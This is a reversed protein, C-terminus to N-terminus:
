YEEWESYETINEVLKNQSDYVDAEIKLQYYYGSSVFLKEYATNNSSSWSEVYSRNIKNRSKYLTMTIDCKENKGLTVQIFSSALGNEDVNFLLYVNRTSEYLPKVDSSVALTTVTSGLVSILMCALIFNRITRKM